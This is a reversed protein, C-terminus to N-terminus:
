NYNEKSDQKRSESNRPSSSTYASASISASASHESFNYARGHGGVPNFECGMCM